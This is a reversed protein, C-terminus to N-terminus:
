AARRTYHKLLGGLREHCVIEGHPESPPSAGSLPANEKSQHPRETLYHAVYHDVLYRLHHEVLVIFHNLCEHKLSQVWREAYANLNPAQVTLRVVSLRKM